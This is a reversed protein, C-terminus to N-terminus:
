YKQALSANYAISVFINRGHFQAKNTMFRDFHKISVYHRIKSNLFLLLDVHKEFTQKSVNVSINNQKEIEVYDRKHISLKIGKLNLDKAFNTILM